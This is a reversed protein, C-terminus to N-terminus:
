AAASQCCGGEGRRRERNGRERGVLAASTGEAEVGGHSASPTSEVHEEEQPLRVKASPGLVPRMFPCGRVPSSGESAQSRGIERLSLLGTAPVTDLRSRTSQYSNTQTTPEDPEATRIGWTHTQLRRWGKIQRYFLLSVTVSSSGWLMAKHQSKPAITLLPPFFVTGHVKSQSKLKKIFM